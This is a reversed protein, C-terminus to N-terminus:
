YKLHGTFRFYDQITNYLERDWLNLKKALKKAITWAKREECVIYGVSTQYLFNSERREKKTRKIDLIYHGYEHLLVSTIQYRIQSFPLDPIYIRIYIDNYDITATTTGYVLSKKAKKSHIFVKPKIGMKADLEVCLSRIYDRIIKPTAM